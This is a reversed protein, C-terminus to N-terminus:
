LRNLSGQHPSFRFAIWAFTLPIGSPRLGLCFNPISLFSEGVKVQHYLFSALSVLLLSEWGNHGCYAIARITLQYSSSRFTKARISGGSEWEDGVMSFPCFFWTFTHAFLILCTKILILFHFVNSDFERDGASDGSHAYAGM